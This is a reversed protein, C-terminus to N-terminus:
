PLAPIQVKRAFRLHLPGASEPRDPNCSFEWTHLRSPDAQHPRPSHLAAVHALPPFALIPSALFLCFGKPLRLRVALAALRPRNRRTVTAMEGDGSRCDFAVHRHNLGESGILRKARM